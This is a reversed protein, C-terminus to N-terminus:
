LMRNFQSALDLDFDSSHIVFVFLKGLVGEVMTNGEGSMNEPEEVVIGSCDVM